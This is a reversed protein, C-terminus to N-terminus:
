PVTIWRWPWDLRADGAGYSLLWVSRILWNFVFSALGAIVGVLLSLAILRRTLGPRMLQAGTGRVSRMLRAFLKQM